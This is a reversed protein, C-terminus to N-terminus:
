ELRGVFMRIVIGVAEIEKKLIEITIIDDGMRAEEYKELLKTLEENLGQLRMLTDM